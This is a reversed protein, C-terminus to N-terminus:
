SATRSCRRRGRSATGAAGSSAGAAGRSRGSGGSRRQRCCTSATSTGTRAFLALRAYAYFLRAAGGGKPERVYPNRVGMSRLLLENNESLAEHGTLKLVAGKTREFRQRIEAGLEEESGGRTVLLDEYVGHIEMESKALVMEVLDVTTRFAKFGMYMEVLKDGDPGELV